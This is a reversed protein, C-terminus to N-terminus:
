VGTVRSGSDGMMARVQALLYDAAPGADVSSFDPPLEVRLVANALENFRKATQTAGAARLEAGIVLLKPQTAQLLTLADSLNDTTMVGYGAQILLERVFALLDVSKEVCLIDVPDFRYPARPAAASQYFAAVAEANTDHSEFITGLRTVRLVEGINAPVGCLKLHGHAAQIRTLLRVLLGLGSSDISKVEALDLVIYRRDPLLDNLHQQLVAAEPGDVIRGSCTVVTIGGVQRSQLSLPL